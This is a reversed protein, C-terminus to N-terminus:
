LLRKVAVVVLGEVPEGAEKRLIERAISVTALTEIRELQQIRTLCDGRQCTAGLEVRHVHVMAFYGM